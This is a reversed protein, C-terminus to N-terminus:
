QQDRVYRQPSTGVVATFMRTLHAQDSFGLRDALAAWEPPGYQALRDAATHALVDLIRRRRIVWKPGIGLHRTFLRQLSRVSVGTSAALHDVRTLTTETDILQCWAEVRVADPHRPRVLPALLHECASIQEALSAQNIIDAFDAHVQAGLLESVPVVRDTLEAADHGSVAAFGGTRWRIGLACSRGQLHRVFRQTDIGFVAVSDAESVMHMAAQPVVQQDHVVGDPLDWHVWWFYTILEALFPSPDIVKLDLARAAADHGVVAGPLSSGPRSTTAV